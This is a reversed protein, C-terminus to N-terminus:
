ELLIFRSVNPLCNLQMAVCIPLFDKNIWEILRHPADKWSDECEPWAWATTPLHHAYTEVKHHLYNGLKLRLCADWESYQFHLLTSHLKGARISNFSLKSNNAPPHPSHPTRPTLPFLALHFISFSFTAASNGIAVVNCVTWTILDAAM